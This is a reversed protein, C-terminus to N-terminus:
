WPPETRSWVPSTPAQIAAGGRDRAARSRILGNSPGRGSLGTTFTETPPRRLRPQAPRSAASSVRARPVHPSRLGRCRWPGAAAGRPGAARRGPLRQRRRGRRASTSDLSVPRRPTTPQRRWPPPHSGPPLHANSSCPHPSRCHAQLAPPLSVCATVCCTRIPKVRVRPDFSNSESEGVGSDHSVRLGGLDPDPGLRSPTVRIRNRVETQVLKQQISYNCTQTVQHAGCYFATPIASIRNRESSLFNKMITSM